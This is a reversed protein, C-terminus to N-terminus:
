RLEYAQKRIKCPQCQGCGLGWEHQTQDAHYCSTLINVLTEEYGYAIIEAVIARKNMAHIPSKISISFNENEFSKNITAEVKILFDKSQDSLLSVIEIGLNERDFVAKSITEIFSKPKITDDTDYFGTYLNTIGNLFCFNSALTLFLLNRNPVMSTFNGKDGTFKDGVYDCALLSQIGRLDIKHLELGLKEAVLSVARLEREYSLQGYAFFMAHIEEHSEKAKLASLFSDTGGSLLVLAKSM